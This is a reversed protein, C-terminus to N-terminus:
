RIPENNVKITLMRSAANALGPNLFEHAIGSYAIARNADWETANSPKKGFTREFIRIASEEASLDRIQPRIGYAMIMIAIDDASKSRDADRGYITKFTAKMSEERDQNLDLPTTTNAIKIVNQWDCEDLPMRGYIARYSDIVGAREGQGLRLNSTTGYNVFNQVAALIASGLGTPVVRPTLVANFYEELSLDRDLGLNGLVENVISSVYLAEVETLTCRKSINEVGLVRPTPPTPVTNPNDLFGAFSSGGSSSGGGGSSSGGGGQTKDNNTITCTITQGALISGTCGESYTTDYNDYLEEQVSYEGPGVILETGSANGPFSTTAMQSSLISAFAMAYALDGTQQYQATYEVNIIFDSPVGSLGSDNIVEKIVILTGTSENSYDDNLVTCTKVEGPALYGFCDLSFRGKYGEVMDESVSYEGAELIIETGSANGAFSITSTTSSTTLDVSLNFDSPALEGGQDNNVEKIVILTGTAAEAPPVYKDDNTVTCTIVDGASLYGTCGTSYSANYGEALVESVSYEGVELVLEKGLADGLFQVTSNTSSTTLDLSLSFDSAVSTGANDNIVNKVVIVTGTAAEAPPAYTDDNTVTCTKTEGVALAGACDASFGATYETSVTETVDYTGAKLIFTTGLADGNFVQTSTTGGDSHDLSLEFDSASSTGENDNIVNKIVVLTGTTAPPAIPEMSNTFICTATMQPKAAFLTTSATAGDFECNTGEGYAFSYGDAGAGETISFAGETDINNITVSSEGTPINYVSLGNIMPSVNFSWMDPTATGDAVNKQITLSPLQLLASGLIPMSGGGGGAGGTRASLSSGPFDSADAGLRACVVVYVTEGQPVNTLFVNYHRQLDTDTIVDNSGNNGGYPGSVFASITGTTSEFGTVSSFDNGTFSFDNLNDVVDAPAGIYNPSVEELNTIGIVDTANGNKTYDYVVYFEIDGDQNDKNKVEILAPVCASEPYAGVNGNKISGAGTPQGGPASYIGTLVFGDMNADVKNQPITAAQVPICIAVGLIMAIFSLLKTKIIM